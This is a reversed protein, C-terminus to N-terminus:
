FNISYETLAMDDRPIALLIRTGELILGDTMAGKMERRLRQCPDFAIVAAGHSLIAAVEGERPAKGNVALMEGRCSSLSKLGGVESWKIGAARASISFVPQSPPHILLRSIGLNVLLRLLLRADKRVTPYVQVGPALIERDIDCYGYYGYNGPSVVTTVLEYAFPSHVGYGRSHRWRKYCESVSSFINM